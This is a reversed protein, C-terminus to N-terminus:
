RRMALLGAEGVSVVESPIDAGFNVLQRDMWKSGDGCYVIVTENDPDVLWAERVGNRAYADLKTESDFHRTGKSLVEVVLDPPGLVNGHVVNEHAREVYGADPQLVTSNNLRCEVPSVFSKGGAELVYAALAEAVAALVEDHRSGPTPSEYLAGEILNHQRTALTRMYDDASVGEGILLPPTDDQESSRGPGM